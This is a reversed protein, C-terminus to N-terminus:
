KLKKLDSIIMEIMAPARVKAAVSGLFCLVILINNNFRNHM